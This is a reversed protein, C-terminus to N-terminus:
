GKPHEHGFEKRDSLEYLQRIKEKILSKPSKQYREVLTSVYHGGLFHPLIVYDAGKKYLDLADDVHDATLFATAKKNQTRLADLLIMNVEFDPITSVLLKVPKLNFESLFEVNGADGYVCTYKHQTLRKVVKPNHDIALYRRKEKKFQSILNFGIRNVGFLLVEHKEGQVGQLADRLKKKEFRQLFPAFFHYLKDGYIVMYTSSTITILAVFTMLSVDTTTLMGADKALMAAKM